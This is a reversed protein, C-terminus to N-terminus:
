QMSEEFFEEFKKVLSDCGFAFWSTRSDGGTFRLAYKDSTKQPLFSFAESLVEDATSLGNIGFQELLAFLQDLSNMELPGATEKEFKQINKQTNTFSGGIEFPYSAPLILDAMKATETLYYDQVMIFGAAELMHTLEGTDMACGVPDEGFIFIHKGKSNKLQEFQCHIEEPTDELKWVAKMLERYAQDNVDVGGIGTDPSIGMDILGQSNNKEKLAVLGAATKGLKGTLLCLNRIEMAANGNVEKESFLLVANAESNFGNVFNEVANAEVGAKQLLEAYDQKLLQKRYEEMGECRDNLFLDNQLGASLLYHNAAKVFHYYSDVHLSRDVKREMASEEKDTILQMPVDRRFKEQQVMYSVLANDMNLESGLIYFANVQNFEEFPVNQESINRYGEGRDLYHFSCIANTKAGARALKQALYLEENTLRAGAFFLQDEAKGEKIKGAVQEIAEAFSIEKWGDATKLMPKTIRKPDNLCNYGFKAQRGINGDKNLIGQRGSAKMYFNGRQHLNIEFGESGWFDITPITETQVPGPKFYVNETLAGTPCTSICLGCHECSSTKLSGGMSPAVYTTFGRNVFGLAEAGVVEKCIRVCRGCLICKNNDFEIFPDSFDVHYVKFDGQFHKQEAEYETSHKQLDCEFFATCGCELCRESEARVINEDDYGLEVEDFNMRAEPDLVPMEAREHHVVADVYEEPKQEAFNEKRSIFEKRPPIIEEGMLYQHCSHVALKAQAIAEIITAPGTVGDGAAFISPVGTQLTKPNADLDGWKNAEVKGGEAYKNINEIFATDTKQGIAALVFDVPLDFESGEVPVPRRRGSDDPEGLEMKVLTMSEAINQENKNVLTPNTLFMYEVGEVKSEHIEIPNAPMEKETRRYVVIVKEAGCRVSTRCCDMATNGGGVVVVTKGTFDAREGTVEMKKLFDIGSMVNDADDGDVRLLTGKQSGPTLIVADYNDKLHKYDLDKGLQKNCHINVGLHTIAAVEKDLIDNPLRYEPIGYRLWGGPKPLAEYIDCQHGRSQLWFAASLGAPGAGVIGVKKGTPIDVVPMYPDESEMDKDAVFRKMYDVGVGTGEGVLHRRCNLECPRVCVRGCIAPLPNTEKILAVAEKYLGKEILSVYGQVDVGAPCTQKCPGLCDAYHNSLLLDLSTKRAQRIKENHTTVKMGEYVPTSCSPQMGRMGEVEVVCVFCSSYPKLRPDHCLTPIEIDNRECVQLITEGKYAKVETGNLFINFQKM